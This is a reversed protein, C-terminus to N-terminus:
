GESLPSYKLGTFLSRPKSLTCTNVECLKNRDWQISIDRQLAELWLLNFYTAHNNEVFFGSCHCYLWHRSVDSAQCTLNDTRHWQQWLTDDTGWHTLPTVHQITPAMDSGHWHQTPWTDTAHWWITLATDITHWTLNDSIHWHWTLAINTDCQTLIDTSYWHHTMDSQWLHTLTTGTSYWHRTMDYHWHCTQTMDTPTMIRVM